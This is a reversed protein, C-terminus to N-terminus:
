RRQETNGNRCFILLVCRRAHTKSRALPLAPDCVCVCVTYYQLSISATKGSTIKCISQHRETAELPIRNTSTHQCTGGLFVNGHEWAGADVSVWRNDSETQQLLSEPFHDFPHNFVAVYRHESAAHRCPPFLCCCGTTLESSSPTPFSM